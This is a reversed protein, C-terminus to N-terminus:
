LSWRQIFFLAPNFAGLLLYALSFLLLIAAFLVTNLQTYRKFRRELMQLEQLSCDKYKAKTQHYKQYFGYEEIREM